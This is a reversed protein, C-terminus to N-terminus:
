GAKPTRSGCWERWAQRYLDELDATFGAEDMLPSAGVKERLAARASGPRAGQAAQGAAIAAFEEPTRAVLDQRGVVAMLSAASRSMSRTGALTIVPVGMWLADCTTTGGSYPTTDLCADVRGYEAYYDALPVREVLDFRSRDINAETLKRALAEATKGRPVGIARLRTGPAAHLARIWLALSTDSVKPFQNFAGFTFAGASAGRSVATGRAAAPPRFCWQSHPM